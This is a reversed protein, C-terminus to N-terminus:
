DVIAMWTYVLQKIVSFDRSEDDSLTYTATNGDYKITCVNGSYSCTMDYTDDGERYTAKVIRDYDDYKYIMSSSEYGDETIYKFTWKDINQMRKANKLEAVEKELALIREEIDDGSFDSIDDACAMISISIVLGFVFAALISFTKKLM